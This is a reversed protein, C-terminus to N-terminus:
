LWCFDRLFMWDFIFHFRIWLSFSGCLCMFRSTKRGEWAMYFEDTMSIRLYFIIKIGLSLWGFLGHPRSSFSSHEVKSLCSTNETLKWHRQIEIQSFRTVHVSHGFFSVLNEFLKFSLQSALDYVLFSLISSVSAQTGFSLKTFSPMVKPFM